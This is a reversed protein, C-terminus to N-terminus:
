LAERPRHCEDYNVKRFENLENFYDNDRDCLSPGSSDLLGAIWDYGLRPDSGAVIDAQMREFVGRERGTRALAFKHSVDHCPSNMAILLSEGLSDDLNRKTSHRTLKRKSTSAQKSSRIKDDDDQVFSVTLGKKRSAQEPDRLSSPKQAIGDMSSDVVITSLKPSPLSFCNCSTSAGEADVKKSLLIEELSDDQSTSPSQIELTSPDPYM